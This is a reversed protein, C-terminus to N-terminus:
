RLATARERRTRPSSFSTASCGPSANGTRNRIEVSRCTMSSCNGTRPTLLSALLLLLTSKGSGNGGVIFLLEGRQIDLDIPGLAVRGEEEGAYAYTVGRLAIRQWAGGKGQM